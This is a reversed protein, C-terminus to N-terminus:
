LWSGPYGLNGFLFGVAVARSSATVASEKYTSVGLQCSRKLVPDLVPGDDQSRNLNLNQPQLDPHLGLSHMELLNGPFPSLLVSWPVTLTM